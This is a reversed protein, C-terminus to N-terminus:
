TLSMDRISEARSFIAAPLAIRSPHRGSASLHFGLEDREQVTGGGTVLHIAPRRLPIAVFYVVIEDPPRETEEM